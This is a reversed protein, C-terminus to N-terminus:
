IILGMDRHKAWKDPKEEEMRVVPGVHQDLARVPVAHFSEGYGFIGSERM